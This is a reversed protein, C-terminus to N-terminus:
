RFCKMINNIIKKLEKEPNVMPMNISIISKNYRRDCGMIILPEKGKKGRLSPCRHSILNSIRGPTKDNDTIAFGNMRLQNVINKLAPDNIKDLEDFDIDIDFM